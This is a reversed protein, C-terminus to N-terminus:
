PMFHNDIIQEQRFLQSRITIFHSLELRFNIARSSYLLYHRSAVPSKKATSDFYELPQSRGLSSARSLSCTGYRLPCPYISDQGDRQLQITLITIVDAPTRFIAFVNINPIENDRRQNNTSWVQKYVWNRHQVDKSRRNLSVCKETFCKILKPQYLNISDFALLSRSKEMNSRLWSKNCTRTGGSNRLSLFM